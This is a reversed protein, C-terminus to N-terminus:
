AEQITISFSFKLKAFSRLILWNSVGKSKDNDYVAGMGRRKKKGTTCQINRSSQRWKQQEETLIIQDNPGNEASVEINDRLSRAFHSGAHSYSTSGFLLLQCCATLAINAIHLIKNLFDCQTGCQHLGSCNILVIQCKALCPYEAGSLHCSTLIM